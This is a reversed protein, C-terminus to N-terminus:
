SKKKKGKRLHSNLEHVARFVWAPSMQIEKHHAVERISFDGTKYLQLAKRKLSKNKKKRYISIKPM